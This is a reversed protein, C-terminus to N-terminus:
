RSRGQSDSSAVLEAPIWRLIPLILAYAIVISVVCSTFGGSRDYLATGLVDGFRASVFFLGSSMMIM